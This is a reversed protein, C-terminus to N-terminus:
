RRRVKFPEPLGRKKAERNMLKYYDDRTLWHRFLWNAFGARHMNIAAEKIDEWSGNLQAYELRAKCAVIRNYKYKVEQHDYSPTNLNNISQDFDVAGLSNMLADIEDQSMKEQPM